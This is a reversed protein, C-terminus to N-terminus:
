RRALLGGLDGFGVALGGLQEQRAAQWLSEGSDFGDDGRRGDVVGIAGISILASAHRMPRTFLTIIVTAALPLLLVLWALNEPNDM